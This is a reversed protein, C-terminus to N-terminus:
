AISSGDFPNRIPIFRFGGQAVLNNFRNKCRTHSRDCGPYLTVNVPGGALATNLSAIPRSLTLSAGSHATVFRLTGDPAELMGTFYDGAPDGAATPITVVLGAVATAERVEAFDAKDLGCGRRYLVHRCTRQFRARLGPRRLSTFISEFIFKIDASGQPRIGALRGKWIVNTGLDTQQFLTLGLSLESDFQMWSRAIINNIDISVELNAKSLDSKSDLNSRGIPIASYTEAAYVVDIDASTFTNVDGDQVFRYLELPRM